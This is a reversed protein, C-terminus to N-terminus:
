LPALWLKPLIADPFSLKQYPSAGSFDDENEDDDEDELLRKAWCAQLVKSELEPNNRYRLGLTGEIELVLVVVLVLVFVAEGWWIECEPSGTILESLVKSLL